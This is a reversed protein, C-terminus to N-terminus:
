AVSNDIQFVSTEMTLDELVMDFVADEVSNGIQGVGKEMTLAQLMINFVADNHNLQLSYDRFRM